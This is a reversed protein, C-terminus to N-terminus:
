IRVGFSNWGASWPEASVGTGPIGRGGSDRGTCLGRPHYLGCRWSGVKCPGQLLCQVSLNEADKCLRGEVQVDSHEENAGNWHSPRTVSAEGAISLTRSLLTGLAIYTDPFIPLLLRSGHSLHFTVQPISYSATGTPRGSGCMVLTCTRSCPPSCPTASPRAAFPLQGSAPSGRLRSNMTTSCAAPPPQTITHLSDHGRPRTSFFIGPLMPKSRRRSASLM